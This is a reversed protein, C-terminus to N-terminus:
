LDFLWARLMTMSTPTLDGIKLSHLITKPPNIAIAVFTM